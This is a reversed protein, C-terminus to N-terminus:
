SRRTRRRAGAVSAVSQLTEGGGGTAPDDAPIQEDPQAEHEITAATQQLGERLMVLMAMALQRNDLENVNVDVAGAVNVDVSKRWKDAQRNSLWFEAAARDPPRHEIIPIRTVVGESNVHIKESRFSYGTALHYMAREVRSDAIDKPIALAAAVHPDDNGWRNLTSLAIGFEQAIEFDNMGALACDRIRRLIDIREEGQLDRYSYRKNRSRGYGPTDIDPVNEPKAWDPGRRRAQKSRPGITGDERRVTHNIKAM